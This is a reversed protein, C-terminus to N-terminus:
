YSYVKIKLDFTFPEEKKQPSSFAINEVEFLRASKELTLLFNKFSSYSGLVRLNLRIEQIRPSDKSPAISGVEVKKLVLGSQSTKKQLFDLLAPISPEPPLASDIKLLQTQYKKLEESIEKLKLFYEEQYKLEVKKEEVRKQLTNLNQYKPWLFGVGLILTLFFCFAIIIPRNM